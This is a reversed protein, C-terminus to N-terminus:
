KHSRFVEYCLREILGRLRTLAWAYKCLTPVDITVAIMVRQQKHYGIFYNSVDGAVAYASAPMYWITSGNARYIYM